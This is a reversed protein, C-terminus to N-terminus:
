ERIFDQWHLNDLDDFLKNNVFVLFQEEINQDTIHWRREIRYTDRVGLKAYEFELSIFASAPQLIQYPNRHIKKRILESYDAKKWKFQPLSDSYLCIKFAEFITTKGAGNNGGFLIISKKQEVVPTSENATLNFTNRDKFLGFNEIVLKRFNM